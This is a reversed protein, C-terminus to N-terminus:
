CTVSATTCSSNGMNKNYWLASVLDVVKQYIEFDKKM